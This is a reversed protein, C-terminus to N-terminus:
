RRATFPSTPLRPLSRSSWMSIASRCCTPRAHLSGNAHAASGPVKPLHRNRCSNYAISRHCCGRLRPYPRRPCVPRCSEIASMVKLQALSIHGANAARWAPGHVRFIDAVELSPRVTILRGPGRREDAAQSARAPEDRGPDDQHRCPCLARDHGAQLAWASGPYRPYRCGARAPPHCSHCRTRASVSRSALPRRQRMFLGPSSARRFRSLLTGGPFCGVMPCCSLAGSARAGGPGCCPCCSRRCCPM